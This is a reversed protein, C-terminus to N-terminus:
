FQYSLGLLLRGSGASQEVGLTFDEIVIESLEISSYKYNLDFALKPTLMFKFGAGATFGSGNIEIYDDQASLGSLALLVYPRFNPNQLRFTYSAGLDFHGLIYSEGQEEISAADFHAFLGVNNRFVYGLGLGLGGGNSTESDEVDISWATGNLGVNVYFGSTKVVGQMEKQAYSTVSFLPAIVIYCLVMKIFANM